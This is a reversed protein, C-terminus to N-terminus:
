RRSREHVYEVLNNLVDPDTSPMIGHGLNFIHGPLQMGETIVQEAHHLCIDTGALLSTPDLNGQLAISDGVQQAAQPLTVRWDVGLVDAGLERLCPYLHSAGVAFYIVPVGMQHLTKIIRQVWPQVHRRYTHENLAGAWSDFLQVASAGAKIQALLCKCISQELYDMLRAWLEPQAMIMTRTKAYDRSPKGEILYSAMTFPAGCFGILPVQLQATLSKVSETVFPLAQEANFDVLRSVDDDCTLPHTIVPGVGEKLEFDVGMAIYPVTLDSFLIAADMDCRKLPMLSIEVALEPTTCCQVMTHKKRLERYEPLFRGAQRMVWIPTCDVAERKCANLFRQRVNTM